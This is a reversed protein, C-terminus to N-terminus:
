AGAFMAKLKAVFNVNRQTQARRSKAGYLVLGIVTAYEPQSVQEPMDALGRPEAIRVPVHFAQEMM